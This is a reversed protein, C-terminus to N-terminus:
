NYNNTQHIYHFAACSKFINVYIGMKIKKFLSM